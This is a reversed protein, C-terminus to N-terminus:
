EVALCPVRGEVEQAEGQEMWVHMRGERARGTPSGPLGAELAGEWGALLAREDEARNPLVDGIHMETFKM